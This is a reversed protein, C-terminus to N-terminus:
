KPQSASNTLEAVQRDMHEWFSRELKDLSEQLKVDRLLFVGGGFISMIYGAVMAPSFVGGAKYGPMFEVSFDNPHGLIRVGIRLRTMAPGTSAVDFKYGKSTEQMRVEMGSGKFFDEIRRSLKSLDINNGVWQDKM